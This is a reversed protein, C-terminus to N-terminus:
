NMTNIPTSECLHWGVIKNFAPTHPRINAGLWFCGYSEVLHHQARFFFSICSLVLGKKDTITNRLAAHLRQKKAIAEPIEICQELWLLM